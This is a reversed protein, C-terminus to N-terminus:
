KNLKCLRNREALLIQAKKCYQNIRNADEELLVNRIEDVVELLEKEIDETASSSVPDSYRIEEILKIVAEKSSENNCLRLLSSAKSQIDRMSATSKELVQDQREIEDRVTDVAIFGVAAIAFVVVYVVIFVWSEIWKGFIMGIFSLIIQLVLHVNAVQVVPFGYFRSRPTNEKRFAIYFLPIQELIVLTAFIYGLWFGPTHEFPVVFSIINFTILLIFIIALGKYDIKKM